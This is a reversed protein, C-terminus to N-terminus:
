VYEGLWGGTPLPLSMSMGEEELGNLHPGTLRFVYM